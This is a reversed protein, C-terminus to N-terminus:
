LEKIIPTMEGKKVPLFGRDCKYKHQQLLLIEVIEKNLTLGLTGNNITMPLYESIFNNGLIIDGHM